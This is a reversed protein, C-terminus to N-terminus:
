MDFSQVGQSSSVVEKCLDSMRSQQRMRKTGVDKMHLVLLSIRISNAVYHLNDHWSCLDEGHMCVDLALIQM